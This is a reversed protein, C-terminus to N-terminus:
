ESYPKQRIQDGQKAPLENLVRDPVSDNKSAIALEQQTRKRGTDGHPRDTRPKPATVTQWPAKRRINLHKHLWVLQQGVSLSAHCQGQIAHGSTVQASETCIMDSYSVDDQPAVTM